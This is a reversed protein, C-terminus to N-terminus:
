YISALNGRLKRMSVLFDKREAFTGSFKTASPGAGAQEYRTSSDVPYGWPGASELSSIEATAAQRQLNYSRIGALARGELPRAPEVYPYDDRPLAIQPAVVASGSRMASLDEMYFVPPASPTPIKVAGPRSYVGGGGGSGHSSFSPLPRQRYQQPEDALSFSSSQAVFPNSAAPPFSRDYRAIEENLSPALFRRYAM